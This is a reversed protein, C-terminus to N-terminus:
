EEARRRLDKSVNEYSWIAGSKEVGATFLLCLVGFSLSAM